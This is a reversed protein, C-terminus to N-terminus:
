GEKGECGNKGECGGKGECSAKAGGEGGKLSGGVLKECLGKPVAVWENPDGDKTAHGMCSHSKDFSGCDNAGAKAVGYCKEKDSDMANAENTNAIALSVAGAVIGATIAKKMNM